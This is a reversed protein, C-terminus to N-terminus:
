ANELDSACILEMSYIESAIEKEQIKSFITSCLGFVPCEVPSFCAYM